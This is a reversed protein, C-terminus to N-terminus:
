QQCVKQALLMKSRRSRKKKRKEKKKGKKKGQTQDWQCQAFLAGDHGELKVICVSGKSTVTVKGNWISENLNWDAAKYGEARARPPVKYVFCENITARTEEYM